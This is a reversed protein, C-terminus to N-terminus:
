KLAENIRQLLVALQEREEPELSREIQEILPQLAAVGAAGTQRGQETVALHTCRRDQPDPIRQVLGASELQDILQTANSRAFAMCSALQGPSLPEGSQDLRRLAWLRAASLGQEALLGDLRTEAGRASRVLAQLLLLTKENM